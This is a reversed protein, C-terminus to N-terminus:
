NNKKWNKHPWKQGGLDPDLSGISNPDLGSGSGIRIRDPDVVCSGVRHCPSSSRPSILWSVSSRRRSPRAEIQRWWAASCSFPSLSLFLLGIDSRTRKNPNSSRYSLYALTRISEKKKKSQWIWTFAVFNQELGRIYIHVTFPVDGHIFM